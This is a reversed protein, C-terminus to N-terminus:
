EQRNWWRPKLNGKRETGSAEASLNIWEYRASLDCHTTSIIFLSNEFQAGTFQSTGWPETSPGRNNENNTLSIPLTSICELQITKALSKTPKVIYLNSAPQAGFYILSIKVIFFELVLDEDRFM